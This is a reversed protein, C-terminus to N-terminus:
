DKKINEKTLLKELLKCDTDNHVIRSNGNDFTVRAPYPYNRHPIHGIYRMSTLKM